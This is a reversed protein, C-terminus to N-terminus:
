RFLSHFQAIPFIILQISKVWIGVAFGATLQYSMGIFVAKKGIASHRNGRGPRSINNTAAIKGAVPNNRITDPRRYFSLVNHHTIWVRRPWILM